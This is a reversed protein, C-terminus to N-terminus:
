PPMKPQTVSEVLTSLAKAYISEARAILWSRCDATLKALASSAM